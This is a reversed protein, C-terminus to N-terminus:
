LRYEKNLYIKLIKTQFNYDCIFHTNHFNVQEDKWDFWTYCLITIVIKLQVLKSNYDVFYKFFVFYCLLLQLASGHVKTRGIKEM